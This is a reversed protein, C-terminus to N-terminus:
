IYVWPPFAIGLGVGFRDLNSFLRLSIELGNIKIVFMDWKYPLYGFFNMDNDDMSIDLLRYPKHTAVSYLM